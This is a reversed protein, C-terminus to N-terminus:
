NPPAGPGHTNTGILNVDTVASRAIADRVKTRFEERARKEEEPTPTGPRWAADMVSVLNYNEPTGRLTM